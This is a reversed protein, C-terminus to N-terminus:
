STFGMEPNSKWAQLLTMIGRLGRKQSGGAEFGEFAFLLSVASWILEVISVLNIMVDAKFFRHM